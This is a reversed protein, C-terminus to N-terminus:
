KLRRKIVIQIKESGKRVKKGCKNCFKSDKSLEKGCENCYKSQNKRLM